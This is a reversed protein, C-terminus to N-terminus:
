FTRTATFRLVELFDQRVSRSIPLGTVAEEAQRAYHETLDEAYERAGVGELISLVSAVDAEGLVGDNYVRMLDQRTVGTAKEMGYVVPLTKKRRRIDGWLPKGTEEPKGWIGLFDDRTQFVLGLDWGFQRLGGIVAADDTGIEAGVELACAMLAATKGGIMGLYEDTTIDVQKEYGIDLCQGEILRITAEDILSQMHVQKADPLISRRVAVNALMRM